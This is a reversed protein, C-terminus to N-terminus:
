RGPVAAPRNRSNGFARGYPADFRRAFAGHKKLMMNWYFNTIGTLSLLPYVLRTTPGMTRRGAVKRRLSNSFIGATALERGASRFDKKIGRLWSEPQVRIGEVGGRVLTGAYAFGRKECFRALWLAATESHLPEPFGSQIVFALRKGRIAAPDLGALSELFDKVIGPVSDTYLPTVLVIEEADLLARHQAAREARRALDFIPISAPDPAGVAEGYGELLWSILLRSNSERGRPSGNLFLTRECRKPPAMRPAAIEPVSAPPPSARSEAMALIKEPPTSITAFLALAGLANLSFRRFLERVLAIDADDDASAPEVILGIDPYHSYRARHHFEGHRICLYPHIMPIFRDQAKKLLATVNGHVLPSAWVVLDARAIEGLLSEMDDRISCRGPSKWWCSWCGTCYGISMNRLDLRNTSHGGAALGGLFDDLFDDFKSSEPNGNIVLCYM